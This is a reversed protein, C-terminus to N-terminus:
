LDYKQQVKKIVEKHPIGQGQDLEALGEDIVLREDASIENWWDEGGKIVKLQNLVDIDQLETLWHIIDIKTAKIDM